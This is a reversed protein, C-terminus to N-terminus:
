YEDIDDYDLNDDYESHDDEDSDIEYHAEWERWNKCKFMNEWTDYGNLDIYEDTRREHLEGLKGIIHQTLEHETRQVKRPPMMKRKTIIKGTSVDKTIIILGNKLKELDPDNSTTSEVEHLTKVKEIYSEEFTQNHENKQLVLDPFNDMKLSEHIRREEEQKEFKKKAEDELKYEERLKQIERVSLHRNNQRRERFGNDKFSNFSNFDVGINHQRKELPIQNRRVGSGYKLGLRSKNDYESEDILDAIRSNSKFINSM